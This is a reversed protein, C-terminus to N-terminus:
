GAPLPYDACTGSKADIEVARNLMWDSPAEGASGARQEIHRLAAELQRSQEHRRGQPLVVLGGHIDGSACLTIFDVENNTVLVFGETVVRELLEPDAIGLMGRDRNCTAEYGHRQAEGVLAPSLCENIWLKV